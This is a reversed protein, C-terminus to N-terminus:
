NGGKAREVDGTPEDESIGQNNANANVGIAEDEAEVEAPTEKTTAPTETGEVENTAGASNQNEAAVDDAVDVAEQASTTPESQKAEEQDTATCGVCLTLALAAACGVSAISQLKM